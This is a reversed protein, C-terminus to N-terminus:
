TDRGPGENLSRAFDIFRKMMREFFSFIRDFDDESPLEIRPGTSREGQQGTLEALRQELATNEEALRAIEDQLAAQADAVLECRWQDDRMRCHSVAGTETDLTRTAGPVWLVDGGSEHQGLPRRRLSLRVAPQRLADGPGLRGFPEAEALEVMLREARRCITRALHLAAAAPHGGPLV